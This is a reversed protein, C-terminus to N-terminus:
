SKNYRIYFNNNNQLKLFLFCSHIWIYLINRKCCAIMSPIKIMLKLIHAFLTNKNQSIIFANVWIRKICEVSFKFVELYMWGVIKLFRFYWKWPERGFDMKKKREWEVWKKEVVFWRIQLKNSILLGNYGHEYIIENKIKQIKNSDIFM